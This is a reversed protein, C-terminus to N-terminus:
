LATERLHSRTALFAGGAGLVLALLALAAGAKLLDQGGLVPVFPLLKQLAGSVFRYALTGLGLAVGAALLTLLLGEWVFPARAFRRTAGVLLMVRLEDRRSQISLRITGMVSFLTDAMLLAILVNAAVRLGGLVRVLQETITGGYEVWAIGELKELREAVQKVKQPTVLKLRLTDPLPNQILENAQSLYPYSLQLAALAQEKTELRAEAVENWTQIQTLIAEADATPKLAAAIEVNRELSSVVRDLNWLVLGLLFLLTFSVLSTTFTALSSTTHQRLARLAQLFAYM